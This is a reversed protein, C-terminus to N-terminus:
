EDSITYKTKPIFEEYCKQFLSLTALVDPMARHTNKIEIELYEVLTSLQHNDSEPFALRSLTLTDFTSNTLKKGVAEVERKIFKFDFATGNHAVLPLDEIFDLFQLITVEITPAGMVMEDTIHNIKQTRSPIHTNPNVLTEFCDIVERGKVKVAALEIIKDEKISLSTTEIDLVIYDTPITKSPLKAPCEFSQMQLLYSPKITHLKGDFMIVAEDYETYGVIDCPVPVDTYFGSYILMKTWNAKDSIFKWGRYKEIKEQRSEFKKWQTTPPITSKITPTIHTTGHIKKVAKNKPKEVTKKESEGNNESQNVNRNKGYFVIGNELRKRYTCATSYLMDEHLCRKVDSCEKFKGCCDFHPFSLSDLIITNVIKGIHDLNNICYNYFEDFDIRFFSDSIVDIINLNTDIMLKMFARNFSVYKNKKSRKIRCILVDPIINPRYCSIIQKPSFVISDYISKKGNIKLVIEGSQSLYEPLSKIIANIILNADAKNDLTTDNYDDFLTTQENM